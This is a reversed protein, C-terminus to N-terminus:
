RDRRTRARCGSADADIGFRLLLAQSELLRSEAGALRGTRSHVFLHHPNGKSSRGADRNEGECGRPAQEGVSTLPAAAMPSEPPAVSVMGRRPGAAKGYVDRMSWSRGRRSVETRSGMKESRLGRAQHRAAIRIAALARLLLSGASRKRLPQPIGLLFSDDDVLDLRRRTRSVIPNRFRRRRRSRFRRM